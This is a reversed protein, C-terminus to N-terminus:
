FFYFLHSTFYSSFLLSLSTFPLSVVQSSDNQSPFFFVSVFFLCVFLCVSLRVFSLIRVKNALLALLMSAEEVCRSVDVSGNEVGSVVENLTEKAVENEVKMGGVTVVEKEGEFEFENEKAYKMANNDEIVNLAANMCSVIVGYDTSLDVAMAVTLDPQNCIEAIKTYPLFCLFSNILAVSTKPYSSEKESMKSLIYRVANVATCRMYADTKNEIKRKSIVKNEKEKEKESEKQKTEKVNTLFLTYFIKRVIGCV